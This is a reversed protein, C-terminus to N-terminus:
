LGAATLSRDKASASALQLRTSRLREAVVALLRELFARAFYPNGDCAGRLRSAEFCLAEVPELARAQFQKGSGLMASWGLEDGSYLIQIPITRGATRSELAIRGSLIVYFQSSTDDERFIIEDKGFHARSSLQSIKQLHLPQLREFFPCRDLIETEAIMVVPEKSPGTRSKGGPTQSFWWRRWIM